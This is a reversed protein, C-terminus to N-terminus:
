RLSGIFRAHLPYAKIAGMSAPRPNALYSKGPFFSHNKRSSTTITSGRCTVKTGLKRMKPVTFRSSVWHAKTSGARNAGRPVKRIVWLKRATGSSIKSAAWSSPAEVKVMRHRIRTGQPLFLRAQTMTRVKKSAQFMTSCGM